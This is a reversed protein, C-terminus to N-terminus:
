LYSNFRKSLLGLDKLRFEMPSYNVQFLTALEKILPKTEYGFPIPGHDKDVHFIECFSNTVAEKPMLFAAAAYDAQRELKYLASFRDVKNKSKYLSEYVHAGSHKFSAQHKDFHFCEHMVTYNKVFVDQEQTSSDLDTDIIITGARYFKKEPLMGTVYPNGPWIWLTGDKYTTAGLYSRDPTLYDIALRAGLMDVIDYVDVDQPQTLRRPDYKKNLEEAFTELQDYSYDHYIM